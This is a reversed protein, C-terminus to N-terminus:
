WTPANISSASRTSSAAPGVPRSTSMPWPQPAIAPAPRAAIGSLGKVLATMMDTGILAANRGKPRTGCGARRAALSGRCNSCLQYMM